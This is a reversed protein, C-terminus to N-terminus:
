SKIPNGAPKAVGRSTAVSKGLIARLQTAEDILSLQETEPLGYFTEMMEAIRGQDTIGLKDMIFPKINHKDEISNAIQQVTNTKSAEFLTHTGGDYKKQRLADLEQEIAKRQPTLPAEVKIDPHTDALDRSFLRLLGSTEPLTIIEGTPDHSLAKAFAAREEPTTSFQQELLEFELLSDTHSWTDHDKGSANTGLEDDEPSEAYSGSSATTISIEDTDQTEVRGETKFKIPWNANEHNTGMPHSDSSTNNSNKGGYWWSKLSNWTRSLFGGVGDIVDEFIRITECIHNGIIGNININSLSNNHFFRGPFENSM